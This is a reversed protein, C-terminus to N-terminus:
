GHELRIVVSKGQREHEIEDMQSQHNTPSTVSLVSVGHVDCQVPFVKIGNPQLICQYRGNPIGYFGRQLFRRSNVVHM